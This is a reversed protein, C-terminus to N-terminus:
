GPAGAAVSQLALSISAPGAGPDIARLPAAAKLLMEEYEREPDSALVVAGGAGITARDESLVVTRIAVSLDAAGGLGFWGIAGSYVGRPAGELADLIETTRLKPAGTMSGPPFCARTADTAAADPRLRGRIESALQHVTEYTEVAMMRPVEVSGVECVRGLDNRLLDVIMLNEARNKEDAALAAALAADEAPTAGRRSTGKIPRAEAEGDRGVRLFREPSSSLVALDGFRLYAAFPAPNVRRLRLYLDLPDADTEVSLQNTLCIEYSDGALLHDISTEVDKLYQEPSRAPSLASSPSDPSDRRAVAPLARRSEGSEGTPAAALSELHTATESLWKGAAEEEGPEHLCLLYTAHEEHDFAVVRDALLFCADPWGSEHPSAHGCEAKLEYGLYGVFGCDFEFPLDPLGAPRLEEIRSRLRDFISESAGVDHGIVEALPGSADGMFSFRARDGPRSSDLWFAHESNGYLSVFATEPPPLADLRQARLELAARKPPVPAGRWVSSMSGHRSTDPAPSGDGAWATLARFNELLRKGHPTAISEPHFQVGWQPRTRHEIAMPVGDCTAIQRLTEPLPEALALSHYRTARFPSPIGAFLPSGDHEIEVVHGHMPEPAHVVEGGEVWGIGQHGLCVGLLPKECHRIADACVGFDGLVDPRGPGPSIVVNDFEMRELEAWSAEDNRVVIPEFGNVEALLQFLNFTFSDHNDILLTQM